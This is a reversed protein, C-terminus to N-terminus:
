GTTKPVHYDAGVPGATGKGHEWCISLYDKLRHWTRRRCVDCWEQYWLTSDCYDAWWYQQM